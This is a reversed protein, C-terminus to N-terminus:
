RHGSLRRDLDHLIGCEKRGLRGWLRWFCGVARGLLARLQRQPPRHGTDLNALGSRPERHHISWWILNWWILNWCILNWVDRSRCHCDTLHGTNSSLDHHIGGTLIHHQVNDAQCCARSITAIGVSALCQRCPFDISYSSSRSYQDHRQTNWRMARCCRDNLALSPSRIFLPSSHGHASQGEM